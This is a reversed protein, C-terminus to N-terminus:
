YISCNVYSFSNTSTNSFIFLSKNTYFAMDFNARFGVFSCIGTNMAILYNNVKNM